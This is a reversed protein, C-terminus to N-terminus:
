QLVPFIRRVIIRCMRILLIPERRISSDEEMTEPSEEDDFISIMSTQISNIPMTIAPMTMSILHSFIFAKRKLSDTGINIGFSSIKLVTYKAGPTARYVRKCITVITM